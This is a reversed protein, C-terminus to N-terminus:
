KRAATPYATAPLLYYRRSPGNYYHPYGGALQSGNLMQYLIRDSEDPASAWQRQDMQFHKPREWSNSKTRKQTFLELWLGDNSQASQAVDILYIIRRDEPFPPAPPLHNSQERKKLQQLTKKWNPIEVPAPKTLNHVFSTPLYRPEDEDEGPLEDLEILGQKQAQRLAAWAHKCYAGWDAAYPCTCSVELEDDKFDLRVTYLKSGRVRAVVRGPTADIIEADGRKFYAEGRQRVKRDFDDVLEARFAM